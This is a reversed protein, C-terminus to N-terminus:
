KKKNNTKLNKKYSRKAFIRVINKVAFNIIKENLPYKVWEKFEEHNISHSEEPRDVFGQIIGEERNNLSVVINGKDVIKSFGALDLKHVFSTEGKFSHCANCYAVPVKFLDSIKVPLEKGLKTEHEWYSSNSGEPPEPWASCVLILDVKGNYYEWLKVYKMDACIALGVSGFKTDVIVGENGKRFFKNELSFVNIKHYKGILGNPGIFFMSNYLDNNEKEIISGSLYVELNKALDTLFSITKGNISEANKYNKESYSYGPVFLEPLLCIQAGNQKAEEIMSKAKQINYDWDFPRSAMQICAVNIKM